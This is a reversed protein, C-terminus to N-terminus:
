KKVPATLHIRATVPNLRLQLSYGAADRLLIEVADATGDPNFAIRGPEAPDEEGGSIATAEADSGAEPGPHRIEIGIRHDLRGASGAVDQLPVYEERGGVQIKREVVYQGTRANLQVCHPQNRSVARSGALELVEALERGTARLRADEYTGRMEPVILATLIAILAVVVTLEMLTFAARRRPILLLRRM